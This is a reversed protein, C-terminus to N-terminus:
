AAEHGVERAKARADLVGKEQLGRSTWAVGSVSDTYWLKAWCGRVSNAFHGPWDKYRKAKNTGKTYDDRFVCWAVQLMEESIGADRCYERVPHDPPLPKRSEQRCAELYAKLTTAERKPRPAAQSAAGPREGTGEGEGTRAGEGARPKSPAQYPVILSGQRADGFERRATLHYADAYRDFFPGLFPNKPLADYEKQIGKCRLDAAKLEEAVQYRAMEHVWVVESEHDYSCYGVEICAHLGKLAGEEGLGTEHAMYLIPQAFLGLMNSSPSTMLYLGVILAEPGRKRLAKFTEGQWAKPGVKAYDRM